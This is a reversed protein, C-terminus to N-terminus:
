QLGQLIKKNIKELERMIWNPLSRHVCYGREHSNFMVIDNYGFDNEPTEVVVYPDLAIGCCGVEGEYSPEVLYIKYTEKNFRRTKILTKEM